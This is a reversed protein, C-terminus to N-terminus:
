QNFYVDYSRYQMAQMVQAVQVPKSVQLLNEQQHWRKELNSGTVLNLTPTMVTPVFADNM